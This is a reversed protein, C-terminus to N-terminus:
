TFAIATPPCMLQEVMSLRQSTRRALELHTELTVPTEVIFAISRDSALTLSRMHTSAFLEQSLLRLRPSWLLLTKGGWRAQQDVSGVVGSVILDAATTSDSAACYVADKEASLM